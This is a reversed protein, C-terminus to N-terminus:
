RAAFKTSFGQRPTDSASLRRLSGSVAARWARCQRRWSFMVKLTRQRLPSLARKGSGPEHASKTLLLFVMRRLQCALPRTKPASTPVDQDRTAANGDETDRRDSSPTKFKVSAERSGDSGRFFLTASTGGCIVLCNSPTKEILSLAQFKTMSDQCGYGLM